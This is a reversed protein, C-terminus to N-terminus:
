RSLSRKMPIELLTIGLRLTSQRQTFFLTRLQRCCNSAVIYEAETTSNAVVTQKRDPLKPDEFGPPIIVMSKRKMKGFFFCERVGDTRGCLGDDEDDDSCIIDELEPMNQDNPLEISSKPDVVNVCVDM